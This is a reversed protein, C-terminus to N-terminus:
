SNPNPAGTRLHEQTVRVKGWSPDQVWEQLLKFMSNPETRDQTYRALCAPPCSAAKSARGMAAYLKNRVKQPIDKAATAEVVAKVLDEDITYATSYTPGRPVGRNEPGGPTM